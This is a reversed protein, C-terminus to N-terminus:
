TRAAQPATTRRVTWIGCGTPSRSGQAEAGPRRSAPSASTSVIGPPSGGGIDNFDIVVSGSFTCDTSADTVAFYGTPRARAAASPPRRSGLSLRPTTRSSAFTRSGPGATRSGRTILDQCTATDINIVSSAVGAVRVEAVVPIYPGGGGCDTDAPMQHSPRDAVRGHGPRQRDPGLTDYRGGRKSFAHRAPPAIEQGSPDSQESRLVPLLPDAGAPDGAGSHRRTHIGQRCSRAPARGACACPQDAPRRRVHRVVLTSRRERVGVQVWYSHRVPSITDPPHPDCPGIGGVVGPDNWSTNQVWLAQSRRRPM